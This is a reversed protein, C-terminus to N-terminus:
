AAAPAPDPAPRRTARVLRLAAFTWAPTFAIAAGLSDAFPGPSSGSLALAYNLVSYLGAALSVLGALGYLVTFAVLTGMSVIPNDGGPRSRLARLLAYHFGLVALGVVLLVIALVLDSRIQGAVDSAPGPTFTACKDPPAGPPCNNVAQPIYYAWAQNVQAFLLKIGLAIGVLTMTAGAITMWAAYLAAATALTFPQGRRTLILVVWVVLGIIGVPILAALVTM